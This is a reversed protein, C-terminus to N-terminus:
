PTVSWASKVKDALELGLNGAASDVDGTDQYDLPYREM